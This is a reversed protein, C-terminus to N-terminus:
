WQPIPWRTKMMPSRMSTGSFTSHMSCLSLVASCCITSNRFRPLCNRWRPNCRRGKLDRALGECLGPFSKFGNGNRSILRAGDSDSYILARFGSWKIEFLRDPDNFPEARRILPMPQFLMEPVSSLGKGCTLEIYLHAIPTIALQGLNNNISATRLPFAAWCRAALVTSGTKRM